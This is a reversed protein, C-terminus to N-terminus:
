EDRREVMVWRKGDKNKWESLGYQELEERPYAKGVEVVDAVRSKKIAIEVQYVDTDGYENTKLKKMFVDADIYRSM